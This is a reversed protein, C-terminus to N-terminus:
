FMGQCCKLSQMMNGMDIGGATDVRTIVIGFGGAGQQSTWLVHTYLVEARSPRSQRCVRFFCHQLTPFLHNGCSFFWEQKEPSRKRATPHRCYIRCVCCHGCSFIVRTGLIKNPHRQPGLTFLAYLLLSLFM